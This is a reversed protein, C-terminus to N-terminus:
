THLAEPDAAPPEDGEILGYTADYLYRHTPRLTFLGEMIEELAGAQSLTRFSRDYISVTYPQLARLHDRTPLERQLAECLRDLHVGAEGWPVIVTTTFGDKIMKFDNGVTEFNMARRNHQINERDLERTFYLQRFFQESAAPDHAALDRGHERLLTRTVELAAQPAGPPPKSAARYVVVRGRDLRGERNCRGAAQVVSDLGGLARYVVPFDLDVGAEVLQTSVVRCVGPEGLRQQIQEIVELRHAPCMLASLHLVEEGTQEELQRALERAEARRHVICLVREHAALRDALEPLDISSEEPDPWEISVRELRRHLQEPNRLIPRPDALGQEFGERARLAPPTATSLVVSCGYHAVLQNLGDLIPNLLEPPLTQVEDLVIVSRALNHLRRARSPKNAFLTEFFQVSTTVVVPADWNEAARDHRAMVPETMERRQKEPDLNSHHELVNKRGLCDAYVRANQEIISTYPIVVVVRRLANAEAHRLAFSMGSLTKGGGTPVTLAFLGPAEGGGARCDALIEARARNVPHERAEETLGAMKEDILRDCRERLVPIADFTSMSAAQDGSGFDASNRRDADVLCSFLFRVWMERVLLIRDQEARAPKSSSSALFPPMTPAAQHIIEPPIIERYRELMQQNRKLRELLHPANGENRIQLNPLGTHHGIISLAIAEWGGPCVERALCAGVGAHEVAIPEGRLRAQFEASYKGVDHWLGALRGWAASHFAGAADATLEAVEKLHQELPQRRIETPSQSEDPDTRAYFLGIEHM